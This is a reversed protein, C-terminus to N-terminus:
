RKSLIPTLDIQEDATECVTDHGAGACPVHVRSASHNGNYSMSSWRVAVLPILHVPRFYIRSPIEGSRKYFYNRDFMGDKETGDGRALGFLRFEGNSEDM